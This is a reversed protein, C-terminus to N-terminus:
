SEKKFDLNFTTGSGVKSRCNIGIGHSKCINQVIYLGLGTGEGHLKSTYFPSFIKDINEPEIGSGNDEISVTLISDNASKLEVEITGDNSIADAANLILNTMIQEIQLDDAIVTSNKVESNFSCKINRKKLLPQLIIISRSITGKIDIKRRNSQSQKSHRLLNKTITSIKNTQDLITKLDESYPELKPKNSMEMELYDARSMIVATHNNVEHAIQSTLEGLTTLRDARQLQEFHLEDIQEKSTRLKLVMLNFRMFVNGMEDNRKVPLNIDLNGGEVMKLANNLGALPKNIFSNFIFYLGIFLLLIVAGALFIMHTAGTFFVTEAKTLDTELNLFAIPNKSVEHCSQCKQENIIPETISYAGEKNILRVSAENLNKLKIHDPAIESLEKGVESTKSTYKIVGRENFIRIYTVSELRGLTSVIEQINKKDGQMMANYLEYRLLNTTTNLMLRSRQNFNERFQHVLIYVPIGTSIIIFLVSTLIFKSRITKFM